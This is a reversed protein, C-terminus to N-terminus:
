SGPEPWCNGISSGLHSGRLPRERGPKEDVHPVFIGPFTTAIKVAAASDINSPKLAARNPYDCDVLLVNPRGSAHRESPGFGM